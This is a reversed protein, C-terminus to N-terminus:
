KVARWLFPFVQKWIFHMLLIQIKPTPLRLSLLPPLSLQPPSSHLICYLVHFRANNNQEFHLVLIITLLVQELHVLQGHLGARSSVTGVGIECHARAHQAAVALEVGATVDLLGDAAQAGLLGRDGFHDLVTTALDLLDVHHGDQGAVLQSGRAAIAPLVDFFKRVVVYM